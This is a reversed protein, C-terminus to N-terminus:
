RVKGILEDFKNKLTELEAEQKKVTLELDRASKREGAQSLIFRIYAGNMSPHNKIGFNTYESAVKLLKLNTGFFLALVLELIRSWM